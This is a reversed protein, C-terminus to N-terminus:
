ERRLARDNICPDVFSVGSPEVQSITYQLGASRADQIVCELDESIAYVTPGVSSMGVIQAGSRRLFTMTRIIEVGGDNYGQIMSQHTGSFQFEWVVEGVARLDRRHLAPLLDMIIRYARVYRYSEDLRLSRKLMELSEPDDEHPRSVKPRM